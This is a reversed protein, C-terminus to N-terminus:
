RNKKSAGFGKAKKKKGGSKNSNAADVEIQPNNSVEEVTTIEPKQPQEKAVTPTSAQPQADAIAFQRGCDKCAYRQKGQRRGNKRLDTSDCAPCAVGIPKTELTTQPRASTSDTEEPKKLTTTIVDVVASVRELLSPAPAPEVEAETAETTLLEQNDQVPTAIAEPNSSAPEVEAENEKGVLEPHTFANSVADIVSSVKELLSPPDESEVAAIPAETTEAAIPEEVISEPVEPAQAVEIPEEVVSQTTETAIPEEAVSEPVEPAQAVEIPEEVISQTTETAIPEEVISEPVEPAQAVEIPEEAVSEPVEPAEAVEIPEEVASQTTEAAIPEEVVSEPVEPAQAVEIPEEVVSQAVITSELAYVQRLPDYVLRDSNSAFSDGNHATTGNPASQPLKPKIKALDGSSAAVLRSIRDGINEPIVYTAPLVTPKWVAEHVLAAAHESLDIPPEISKVDANSTTKMAWSDVVLEAAVPPLIPKLALASPPFFRISRAMRRYLELHDTV